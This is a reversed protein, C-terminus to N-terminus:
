RSTPAFGAIPAAPAPAVPTPVPTPTAPTPAAAPLRGLASIAEKARAHAPYKSVLEEWTKRARDPMKVDEYARGLLWLSEEDYGVGRYRDLLRRLRLVTGMPKDRDWYYRAVYWEHAALRKAVQAMIKQAQPRYPSDPYRDLFRALEEGADETAGQDKEYSPPLIWVDGPLQRYFAEGIKFTAYGNAVFEHTPHLKIFLRYREVAQLYEEAGFEADATRLEALALFKSFKFRSKIFSFYKAAAVWEKADLQAMGADYNAQPTEQYKVAAVGTTACGPIAAAGLALLTAIAASRFSTKINPFMPTQAREVM